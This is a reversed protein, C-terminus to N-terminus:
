LPGSVGADPGWESYIVVLMQRDRGLGNEMGSRMSWRAAEGLAYGCTGRGGNVDCGYAGVFLGKRNVYM